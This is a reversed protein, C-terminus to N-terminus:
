PHRERTRPLLISMGEMQEREIYNERLLALFQPTYFFSMTPETTGTVAVDRTAMLVASFERRRLKDFLEERNIRGRDALITYHGQDMLTPPAPRVLALYPNQTLIPGEIQKVREVLASPKWVLRVIRLDHRLGPFFLFADILIAPLLIGTFILERAAKWNDQAERWLHCLWRTTVICSLAYGELYYNHYAGPKLSQFVAAALSLVTALSLLWPADGVPNSLLRRASLGLGLIMIAAPLLPVERLINWAYALYYGNDLSDILNLLLLGRLKWNLILAPVLGAVAFALLGLLARRWGMGMVMWVSLAAILGWSTAKFWASVWLAILVTTVTRPRAPNRLAIALALLSFFVQPPDPRYSILHTFNETWITFAAVGLLRWIPPAGLRALIRALLFGIGLLSVLSQIRGLRYIKLPADSLGFFRATWGVPYYTLPEYPAFSYPWHRWDHYPSEGRAVDAARAVVAGEPLSLDVIAPILFALWLLSALVRLGLLFSLLPGVYRRRYFAPSEIPRLSRSESGAM